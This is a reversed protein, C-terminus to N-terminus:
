EYCIFPLIYLQSLNLPESRGFSPYERSGVEAKLWLDRVKM